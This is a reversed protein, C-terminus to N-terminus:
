ATGGTGNNRGALMYARMVYPLSFLAEFDDLSAVMVRFTRSKGRTVLLRPKFGKGVAADLFEARSTNDATSLRVRAERRYYSWAVDKAEEKLMGLEEKLMRVCGVRTDAVEVIDLIAFVDKEHTKLM